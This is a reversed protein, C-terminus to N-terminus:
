DDHTRDAHLVDTRTGFQNKRLEPSPLMHRDDACVSAIPLAVVSQLVQTREILERSPM